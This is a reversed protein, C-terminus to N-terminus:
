SIRGITGFRRSGVILTIPGAVLLVGYLVLYRSDLVAMVTSFRVAYTVAVVWGLTIWEAARMPPIWVSLGLVTSTFGIAPLLWLWSLRGPLLLGVLVVVPVCAILVSATRLLVLRALPYPVATEQELAGSAEPGYTLAVAFAPILPAVLLFLATGATNGSAAAAAAVFVLASCLATLWPGRWTPAAAVLAADSDPLGLRSLLREFRSAPPLEIEDRVRSWVDALDPVAQTQTSAVLAAVHTQCRQCSAVHQEVSMAAISGSAGQVWDHLDKPAVHYQSM